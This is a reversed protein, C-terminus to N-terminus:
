APRRSQPGDKLKAPDLKMYTRELVATTEHGSVMSAEVPSFGKEQILRSICDRRSDHLRLGDIGLAHKALTYRASCSKSNYPFIRPQKPDRKEYLRVLMAQAEDPLAVTKIKGKRKPDKMGRVVITHDDRNWDAWLLKCTEGIRRSSALQWLTIRVMDIENRQQDNQAEFYALLRDIEEDSPRRTRPESKGMLGHKMLFPKASDIPAATIEDDWASGAYKLVGATYTVYQQVTAPHLGRERLRRCLDIINIKTLAKPQIQGIEDAAVRRLTYVQSAGLPRLTSMERIYREILAALTGEAPAHATQLYTTKRDM